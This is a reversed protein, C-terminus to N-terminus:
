LYNSYSNQLSSITKEMASFKAELNAKYNAVKTTQTTIRDKYSQVDSKLTNTMTTFYGTSSVAGEVISEIRALLGDEESESGIFLKKVADSNEQLAQKLDNEDLSIKDTDESITAGIAATSVGVQNLMTYPDETKGTSSTILSRLSRKISNLSTDGYLEGGSKTLKDLSDMLSNYKNVVDKVADVVKTMDQEVNLTTTGSEETSVAHLNITVGEVRSVDSSVVNSSSTVKSGNIYLIANDGLTQVDTNLATSTLNGEEWSSKTFGMVDTFNSTGAEINMYSQGEITSTLVLKANASDWYATAHAVGTNNIKSIIDNITTNENITFEADGITFTGATVTTNQSNGNEDYTKFLNSEMVKSTSAARYLCTNSLYSGDEQVELGLISKFNSSDNTAGVMIEDGDNVASLSLKGEENIELNIGAASFRAKLDQVTDEEEINITNKVGNVYATVSGKNIGIDSVKTEDSAVASVTKDSAVITKTALQEVKIEYSMRAANQSATATFIKEDSSKATNNAFVDLAGGFKSDTLKELSSRLSSFSAQLSSVTSQKKQISSLKSQLSSITTQKVSVLAEVWSSTDLGSALGSFTITPM